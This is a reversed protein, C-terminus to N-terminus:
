NKITKLLRNKQWKKDEEKLKKQIEELSFGDKQWNKIKKQNAQFKSLDEEKIRVINGDFSKVSFFKM